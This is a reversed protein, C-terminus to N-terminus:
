AHVLRLGAPKGWADGRALRRQPQEVRHQPPALRDFLGAAAREGADAGVVVARQRARDGGLHQAVQGIEVRQDIRRSLPRQRMVGLRAERQADRERLHEREARRACAAIAVTSGSTSPPGRLSTWPTNPVSLRRPTVSGSGGASGASVASRQASWHPSAITSAARRAIAVGGGSSRVSARHPRGAFTSSSSGAGGGSAARCRSGRDARSDVLARPPHLIDGGREGRPQEAGARAGRDVSQAAGPPLVICSAAAPQSTVAISTASLRRARSRSLRSRVCKVASITASSAVSQLGAAGTSATSSSAGHLAVPMKRRWGSTM